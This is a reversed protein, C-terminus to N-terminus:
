TKNMPIGALITSSTDTGSITIGSNSSRFRLDNDPQADTESQITIFISNPKLRERLYDRSNLTALLSNVYCRPLMLEIALYLLIRPALVYFAILAVIALIVTILGTNLTLVVLSNLLQNTRKVGTRSRHLNLILGFTIVVDCIIAGILNM